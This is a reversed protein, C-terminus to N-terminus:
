FFICLALMIMTIKYAAFNATKPNYSIFFLGCILLKFHVRVWRSSLKFTVKQPSGQRAERGSPIAKRKNGAGVGHGGAQIEPNDTERMICSNLITWVKRSKGGGYHSTGPRLNRGIFNGNKLTLIALESRNWLIWDFLQQFGHSNFSHAFSRLHTTILM